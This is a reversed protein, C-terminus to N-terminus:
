TTASDEAAARRKLEGAVRGTAGRLFDFYGERDWMMWEKKTDVERKFSELWERDTSSGESDNALMFGMLM